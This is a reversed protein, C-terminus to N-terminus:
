AMCNRKSITSFMTPFPSISTVLMIEKEWLTKMKKERPDKFRLMTHYLNLIPIIDTSYCIKCTCINKIMKKPEAKILRKGFLFFKSM